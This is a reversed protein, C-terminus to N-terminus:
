GSKKFGFNIIGSVFGLAYSFHLIFVAVPIYKVVNFKENKLKIIGFCVLSLSYVVPIFLGILMIKTIISLLAFILITLFFLAPVQQRYSIPIKYKMLVPIRWKGYQFYQSFLKTISDRVYYISKVKPSIFIKEGMLRIRFCFEDDQNRILNEDYLGYKDFVEKRFFPFCAMESFGEYDPYRHKANGVGVPSSMAIATAKAFNNDGRATTPGGSCIVGPNNMLIDFSNRLFYPDYESHAGMICIYDGSSNKIGLNFANPTKKSPNDIMKVNSFKQVLKKIIERTNDTSMGDLILIEIKCPLDKQLVLSEICFQIHKEENRCPIIISILSM